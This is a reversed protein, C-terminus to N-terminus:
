ACFEQSFEVRRDFHDNAARQLELLYARTDSAAEHLSEWVADVVTQWVIAGYADDDDAMM